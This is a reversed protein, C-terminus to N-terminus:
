KILGKVIKKLYGREPDRRLLYVYNNEDWLPKLIYVAFKVM